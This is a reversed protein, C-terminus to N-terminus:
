AQLDNKIYLKQNTFIFFIFNCLCEIKNKDTKRVFIKSFQFVFIPLITSKKLHSMSAGCGPMKLYSQFIVNHSALIECCNNVLRIRISQFM